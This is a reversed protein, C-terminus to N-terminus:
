CHLKKKVYIVLLLPLLSLINVSSKHYTNPVKIKYDYLEKSEKKSNNVKINFDDVSTYGTTTNRQKFTYNGYPLTIKAKGNKDTTITDVLKNNDDIVDFSVDEEDIYDNDDGYKKHIEIEKEIVKNKLSIKSIPSDKSIEVEYINKDLTYGVGPELEKIFYSGYKLNTIIAKNASDIVVEKIINMNKDMIAYRAGILKANGSPTISNTDADIKKIEISTKKVVVNLNINIRNLDGVTVMNQSTPSNYFLPITSNSIEDRYLEINYNGEKLGDVVLSNNVIHAYNSKSVYRSLVNNKDVLTFPEDEVVNMTANNISPIKHYDDILANVEMMEGEFKSIRNGNLGDTFYYDGTPDATQWVMFQTIAYWENSTHSGYGYGFHIIEKIREMQENSLNDATLSSEYTSNENFMNFPEICYSFQNDNSRRFFRAKQYYIIGGKAKNVYVGDVYEGEYFSFSDANVYMTSLINIGLITMLFVLIKKM